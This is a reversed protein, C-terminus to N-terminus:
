CEHPVFAATSRQGAEEERQAFAIDVCAGTQKESFCLEIRHGLSILAVEVPDSRSNRM